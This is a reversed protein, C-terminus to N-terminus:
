VGPRTLLSPARLPPRALAAWLAPAEQRADDIAQNGTARHPQKQSLPEMGTRRAPEGKCRATLLGGCVAPRAM